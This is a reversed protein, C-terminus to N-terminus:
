LCYLLLSDSSIIVSISIKISFKSQALCQALHKVQMKMQYEHCGKSIVLIIIGMKSNFFPLSLM